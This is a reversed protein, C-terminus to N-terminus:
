LSFYLIHKLRCPTAAEAPDGASSPSGCDPKKAVPLHRLYSHMVAFLDFNRGWLTLFLVAPNPLFGKLYIAQDPPHIRRVLDCVFLFFFLDRGGPQIFQLKSADAIPSPRSPRLRQSCGVSMAVLRCTMIEVMHPIVLRGAASAAGRGRRWVVTRRRSGSVSM